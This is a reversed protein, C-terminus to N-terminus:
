GGSKREGKEKLKKLYIGICKTNAAYVDSNTMPRLAVRGLLDSKRQMFEALKAWGRTAGPSLRYGASDGREIGGLREGRVGITYQDFLKKLNPSTTILNVASIGKFFTDLSGSGIHNFM